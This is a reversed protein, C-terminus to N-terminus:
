RRGCWGASWLFFALRLAALSYYFGNRHVINAGILPFSVLRFIKLQVTMLLPFISVCCYVDTEREHDVPSEITKTHQATNHQTTHTNTHKFSFLCACNEQRCVATNYDVGCYVEPTRKSSCVHLQQTHQIATNWDHWMCASNSSQVAVFLQVPPSTFFGATVIQLSLLSRYKLFRRSSLIQWAPRERGERRIKPFFPVVAIRFIFCGFNQVLNQSAEPLFQGCRVAVKM